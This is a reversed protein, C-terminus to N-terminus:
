SWVPQYREPPRRVRSSRHIVAPQAAITESEPESSNEPLDADAAGDLEFEPVLLDELAREGAVRSKIHDVHRRVTVGSNIMVKYSRPGLVEM